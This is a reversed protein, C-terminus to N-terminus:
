RRDALRFVDWAVDEATFPVTDRFDYAYLEFLNRLTPAQERSIPDLSIARTTV